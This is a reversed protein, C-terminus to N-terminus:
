VSQLWYDLKERLLDRNLPKTIFDNMGVDFCKLRAEYDSNATVAVIPCHIGMKRMANASAFGDMVPMQLDMLVIDFRREGIKQVALLGNGAHESTFGLRTLLANLVKANVENDEVVLAHGGVANKLEKGAQGDSQMPVSLTFRTGRGLESDITITAGLLRAIRQCVALGIGLGEFKRQYGTSAQTFSEFLRARMDPAIGCGTDEFCFVLRDENVEVILRVSGRETFKCANELVPILLRILLYDDGQFRNDGQGIQEVSFVVPKNFLCGEAARSIRKIISSLLFFRTHPKIKQQDTEALMILNEVQSSLRDTGFQIYHQLVARDNEDRAESLQGISASIANLPTRLEHSVAVIFQDKQRQNEEAVQLANSLKQNAELLVQTAKQDVDRAYELAQAKEHRMINIRDALAIALLLVDITQAVLTVLYEKQTIRPMGLYPLVVLAGGVCMCLFGAVYFRAPKFGQLWRTIGAALGGWLWFGTMLNILLYSTWLPVFPFACALGLAVIAVSNGYRYMWPHSYKNIVLFHRYFFINTVINLYFPVIILAVHSVNLAQSFVKFVAAWGVFTSALYLSYFLYDRSQTWVSLLLNYLALILISGLCGIILLNDILVEYAYDQEPQIYATPVGTFYRSEFLIWVDYIKGPALGFKIGYHLPFDHPYFQGSKGYQVENESFIWTEVNEIYSGLRGVTWNINEGDSRVKINLWYRGGRMDISSVRLLTRKFDYLSDPSPTDGSKARYITGVQFLDVDSPLTVSDANALIPCACVVTVVILTVLYVKRLWDSKQTWSWDSLLRPYGCHVELM